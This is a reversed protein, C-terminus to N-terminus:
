PIVSFLFDPLSDDKSTLRFSAVLFQLTGFYKEAM